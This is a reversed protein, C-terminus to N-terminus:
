PSVKISCETNELCKYYIDMEQINGGRATSSFGLVKKGASDNLVDLWNGSLVEKNSDTFNKKYKLASLDFLLETQTENKPTDLSQSQILHGGYEHYVGPSSEILKAYVDDFGTLAKGDVDARIYLYGDAITGKIELTKQFTETPTHGASSNKFDQVVVVKDLSDKAEYPSVQKQISVIADSTAKKEEDKQNSLVAVALMAAALIVLVISTSLNYKNM